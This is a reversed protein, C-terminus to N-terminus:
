PNLTYDDHGHMMHASPEREQHEPSRIVDRHHRQSYAAQLDVVESLEDSSTVTAWSNDSM